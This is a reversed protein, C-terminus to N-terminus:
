SNENKWIEHLINEFNKSFRRANCIPSGLLKKRLNKRITSIKDLNRSFNIAKSVYEEKNFSIWENLGVNMLIQLGQRSVFREGVLTLVPVGMWLAEVSITGGSFPYTDLALDVKNYCELYKTRSEHSELMLQNKNIGLDDFKKILKNKEHINNLNKNKILIKNKKNDKLIKSWLFILEDNIKLINSFCCFTVYGNKNAPSASIKIEKQPPSFCMRTEPMRYIKETFFKDNNKPTIYPDGILYNIKDLGTTSFYGLWSIQVPAPKLAFVGLRNESTHGSLDILINIEDDYIKKAFEYDNKDYLTNWFSFYPKIRKTLDDSLVSTNYAIFELRSNDVNYLFNELFYGVPHNRFDGSVFGIKLKNSSFNIKYESFSNKVKSSISKGFKKALFFLKKSDYYDVYNLLLLLNNYARSYDPKIEIAKEYGKIASDFDGLESLARSYNYLAEAYKPNLEISKKFKDIAESYSGIEILCSGLNNYAEPFNPQLHIVREYDNIAEQYRSLKQFVNGRNNYAVIFDSKIELAKNYNELAQELNKNKFFINACNNYAEAFDPKLKIAKQYNIIAENNQELESYANGLNNYSEPFNEDIDCIKKFVKLAEDFKKKSMLAAGFINLIHISNPYNLLLKKCEEELLNINGENYIKILDNIIKESPM